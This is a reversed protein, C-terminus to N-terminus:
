VGTAVGGGRFRASCVQGDIKEDGGVLACEERSQDMAPPSRGRLLQVRLDSHQERATRGIQIKLMRASSPLSPYRSGLWFIACITAILAGTMVARADLRCAAALTLRFALIRM